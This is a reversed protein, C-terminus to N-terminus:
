QAVVTYKLVSSGKPQKSQIKVRGQIPYPLLPVKYIAIYPIVTELSGSKLYITLIDFLM